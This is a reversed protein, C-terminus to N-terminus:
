RLYVQRVWRGWRLCRRRREAVVRSSKLRGEEAEGAEGEYGDTSEWSLGGAQQLVVAEALEAVLDSADM